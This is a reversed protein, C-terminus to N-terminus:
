FTSSNRSKRMAGLVRIDVQGFIIPQTDNGGSVQTENPDAGVVSAAMWLREERRIRRSVKSDIHPGSAMDGYGATTAPFNNGLVLGAAGGPQAVSFDSLLWTRRWIWPQRVNDVNQPDVEDDQFDPTGQSDDQARGIFFGLTLQVTSWQAGGAPAPTGSRLGLHVKGVIRKLAWDQGEVFDRLSVQNTVDGGQDGLQFTQDPLVAQCILNGNGFSPLVDSHPVPKLGDIRTSVTNYFNDLDGNIRTGFVPFWTYKTRRRRRM